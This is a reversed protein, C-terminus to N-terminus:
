VVGEQGFGLFTGPYSRAEVVASAADFLRKRHHLYDEKKKNEATVDGGLTYDAYFPTSLVAGFM